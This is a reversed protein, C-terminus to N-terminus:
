LQWSLYKTSDTDLYEQKVQETGAYQIEWIKIPGVLGLSDIYAFDDLADYGQNRISDIFINPESHALKFNSFKSFPDNLIYIQGLLGRMIRPSVYMVVGVNDASSSSVRPMVYATGEVGTKFDIFKGQYYLYRLLLNTQKGQYYFVAQPQKFSTNTQEIIIGIIAAQQGPLFIRTANDQYILDEEIYTGGKYVRITSDKTEQVEKTDYTFTSPGQSFRDFSENSGISSFAGYKGLDSSDILLYNAKHSYLFDLADKQNDGTLVLRGTLYNWYVLANGGDTVTARNGISQLWYGYDWWHCFVSSEPTSTRTWNMAKQWQITYHYPVYGYAESKVQNYFSYFSFISFGLVIIIVAWGLLKKTEDKEKRKDIVVVNLYAVFIPAIPGLVMILRVASRATFLCLVLLAFLFLYEFDIKEFSDNHEKKYKTYYYIVVGVLLLASVYYIFKSIFNEGNLVSAASYRSFILGFLFIIYCITIIWSEKNKLKSLMKKFLVISGIIFLWFMIPINKIFPGFNGAWENFYPQRNEAVTTNWRGTVPKFFIKNLNKVRDIIFNPGLLVSILVIGLIAASILSLINEPLKNNKFPKINRVKTKWILFHVCMIFLVFLAAGTDLGAVFSSISFRKTFLVTTLLSVIYWSGYIFFEKKRVKNLIFAILGAIGITVYAYSVGGWSLGMLGTSIGALVGLLVAIKIKETKWAKLFLYFALFMFFFAVSEKEPIGAITRSLFVPIVIMFFTAILSIINAKLNKDESDKRAFVERVFLFFSIITLIFLLVPMLAGAYNISYNGFMNVLKYTLVIMYSVMQLEGYTNFGLPVNRMVDISSFSGNIMEKAYRLFLFPDLDPGLTYDNTTVDWLGPKGNHDTLPLSRIYVGLIIAIALIVLVWLNKKVFLKKLKEEREELIGEEM